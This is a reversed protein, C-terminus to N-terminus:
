DVPAAYKNSCGTIATIQNPLKGDRRQGAVRLIKWADTQEKELQDYHKQDEPLIKGSNIKNQSLLQLSKDRDAIKQNYLLINNQHDYLRLNQAAQNVAELDPREAAVPIATNEALGLNANGVYSTISSGTEMLDENPLHELFQGM